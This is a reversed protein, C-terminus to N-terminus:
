GADVDICDRWNARYLDEINALPQILVDDRVADVIRRMLPYHFPLHVEEFWERRLDVLEPDAAGDLLGWVTLAATLDHIVPGRALLGCRKMAVAAGVALADEVQEGDSLHLRDSFRRALRLAYGQDPGPTGLQEGLPQLGRIEAPRDAVWGGSRPPPSEYSRVVQQPRTPVFEPAAM